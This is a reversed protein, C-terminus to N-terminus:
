SPESCLREAERVALTGRAGTSAEKQEKEAHSVVSHHSKLVVIVYISSVTLLGVLNIVVGPTNVALAVCFRTM